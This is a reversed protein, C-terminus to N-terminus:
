SEGEFRGPFGCTEARLVERGEANVCRCKLRVWGKAPNAETVEAEATITDGVYVPALFHFHMETAVYAWLGGLHTLLSATLLGPVIRKKFKTAAAYSENTHLPGIDWTVGIFLVADTETLTRTFSAKEGVAFSRPIRRPILPTEM